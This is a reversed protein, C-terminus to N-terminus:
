TLLNQRIDAFGEDMRRQLDARTERLERLLVGHGEAIVTIKSDMQELLAMLQQEAWSGEPQSGVM